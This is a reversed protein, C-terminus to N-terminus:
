ADKKKAKKTPKAKAEQKAEVQTSAGQLEVVMERKVQVVIGKAVEVHLIGDKEDVSEVDGILGGSTVVRDGKGLKAVMAQHAKAKQQSPRILLLYFVSIILVMPLMSSLISPQAAAAAADNALAENILNIM